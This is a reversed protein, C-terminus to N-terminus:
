KRPPLPALYITITYKLEINMLNQLNLTDCYRWSLFYVNIGLPYIISSLRRFWCRHQIFDIYCDTNVTILLKIRPFIAHFHCKWAHLHVNQGFTRMSSNGICSINHAAWFRMFMEPTFFNDWSIIRAFNENEHMSVEYKWAGITNDHWSKTM